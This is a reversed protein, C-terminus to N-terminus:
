AKEGTFPRRLGRARDFAANWDRGFRELGFREAAVARAADGMARAREPDALLLQMGAVLEEPDCSIYGTVGNEIVTPLETTALAVIPMGITMAEIVALPLSTYRM